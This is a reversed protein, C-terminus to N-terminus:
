LNIALRDLLAYARHHRPSDVGATSALPSFHFGDLRGDIPFLSSYIMVEELVM